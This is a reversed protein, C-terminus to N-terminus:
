SGYACLFKNHVSALCSVIRAVLRFEVRARDNSRYHCWVVDVDNSPGVKSEAQWVSVDGVVELRLVCTTMM